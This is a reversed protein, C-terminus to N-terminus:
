VDIRWLLEGDSKIIKRSRLDKMIKFFKTRHTSTPKGTKPSIEPPPIIGARELQQRFHTETTRVNGGNAAPAPFDLLAIDLEDRALEWDPTPRGRRRPPTIPVDGGVVVCSTIPQGEGDQGLEVVDLKFGLEDGDNGDRSKRIRLVRGADSREVELELDVAARLSSHGRAGLSANKGSHHVILQSAHTAKRIADMNAVFGSMDGADNENSGPTARAMTDVIILDLATQAREHWRECARIVAAVDGNGTRGLNIPELVFGFPTLARKEDDIDHRQCFADVRNAWSSRGEAAIYLVGGGKVKRGMWEKALAYHAAMDFALFSKGSGSEGYIMALQETGLMGGIMNDQRESAGLEHWGAVPIQRVHDDRGNPPPKPPKGGTIPLLLGREREARNAKAQDIPGFTPKSM